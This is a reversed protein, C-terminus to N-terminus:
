VCFTGRVTQIVLTYWADMNVWSLTGADQSGTDPCISPRTEMAVAVTFQHIGNM